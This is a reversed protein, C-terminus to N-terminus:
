RPGMEEIRLDERLLKYKLIERAYRARDSSSYDGSRLMEAGDHSVVVYNWKEPGTREIRLSITSDRYPVRVEREDSALTPLGGDHSIEEKGMNAPDHALARKLRAGLEAITSHVASVQRVAKQHAASAEQYRASAAAFRDKARELEVAARDKARQAEELWERAEGSVIILRVLTGRQEELEAELEVVNGLEITDEEDESSVDILNQLPINLVQALAAAENLRLARQGLEIRAIQTQHLTVGAQRVLEGLDAQSWRRRERIARLRSGFIVEPTADTSLRRESPSRCKHPILMDCM